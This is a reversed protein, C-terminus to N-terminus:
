PAYGSRALFADADPVELIAAIAAAKDIARDHFAQAIRYGVFYGLDGPRDASESGQNYLWRSVDTGHMQGQFEDWLARENLLGFSFIRANPNGGSVMEGIFDASGELLAQELLNKDAHAFMRSARAQLVHAHEHAVIIPVSALPRANNREFSVLEDLPTAEDSGYFEAGILLGHPSITGATSFRGFLFTVPPFVAPPYLAKLRLYNDRVTILIPADGALTLSRSRIADFYRPRAGVMNAVSNANVARLGVFDTLGPSALDLYRAQFM